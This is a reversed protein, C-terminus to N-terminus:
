SLMKRCCEISRHGFGAREAKKAYIGKKLPNLLVTQKREGTEISILRTKQIAPKQCLLPVTSDAKATAMPDKVEASAARKLFVSFAHSRFDTDKAGKSLSDFLDSSGVSDEAGFEAYFEFLLHSGENLFFFLPTILYINHSNGM